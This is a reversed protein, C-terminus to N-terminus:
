RGTSPEITTTVETLRARLEAKMVKGTATSPFETVLEMREPMKQKTVGGTILFEVLEPLGLEAGPTLIVFACAREGLLADPFAVVAAARIAPHTVLLNEVELASIKMGGRNIIDKLRDVYLVYGDEDIECLDGSYYWGDADKAAATQEPDDIYGLFVHPGWTSYEGVEGPGLVHTRDDPDVIRSQIGEFPRGDRGVIKEWPDGPLNATHLPAEASGFVRLLSTGMEARAREVLSPPIRAGGSLFHTFRSLDYRGLEPVDLMGAIFPTASVTFVAGEEAVLELAAVPDWVDQLVLKAGVLLSEYLGFLIGTVHAIPSPMWIPTSADLGAVQAALLPPVLDTNHTHVVGKPSGTTGSTFSVKSIGDPDPRRDAFVGLDPVDAEALREYPIMGEGAGDIVIVHELTPCSGRIRGAMAVYDASRHAAPIVYARAGCKDIKYSVDRDRYISQITLARLGARQTALYSEVFELQNPIQLAVFDRPQLGLAIFGAAIRDVREALEAWTVRRQRDVVAIEQPRTRRHEDLFDILLRDQWLGARKFAAIQEESYVDRAHEVRTVAQSTTDPM